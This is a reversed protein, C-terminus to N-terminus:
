FFTHFINLTLLLSVSRRWHMRKTNRNNVKFTYNGIPSLDRGMGLWDERKRGGRFVPFRQNESKKLPPNLFSVNAQLLNTFDCLLRLVASNRLM